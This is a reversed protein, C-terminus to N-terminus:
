PVIPTYLLKKFDIKEAVVNFDSFINMFKQTEDIDKQTFQDYMRFRTIPVAQIVSDDIQLYKQLYQRAEDPNQNVEHISKSFVALVKKAVDPNTNVFDARVIGAGGYFPNAIYKTTFHSVLETGINKNKIVTPLPEIGILADVQGSALAQAQLNIPLDVLTVDKGAVLNNQALFDKAITQWQISGTLIGLKTGRLDQVSHISSNSKVLLADNQIVDDGGALAYIQLKGPNKLDAIAVIGTAGGPSTIDVQGQLLADIIQGPSQFAILEANIGVEKFYGKEEALYLPLGHVLPLYAIKVTPTESKMSRSQSAVYFVSGIAALLIVLGLITKNSM